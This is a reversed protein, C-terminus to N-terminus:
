RRKKKKKRKKAKPNKKPQQRQQTSAPKKQNEPTPSGQKTQEKVSAEGSSSKDMSAGAEAGDNIAPRGGSELQPQNVAGKQRNKRKPQKRQGRPKEDIVEVVDGEVVTDQGRRQARRAKRAKMKAEAESGPAPMRHIVFFQQGMTWMNTVLWYILVGIPFYVGSVAFIFPMMYMFMKQQRAFPNDLAAQPMNKMTLQRQTFFQTASMAIIMIATVIKVSLMDSELFSSSLPAGFITSAQASEAVQADIPGVPSTKGLAIDQLGRLVRFLAFFIPTQLLIPMCSSFPNTGHKRYLAMTEESMAQRSVPDTKGKYRDQIKKLEPQLMQMARSARIQRVFLPILVIRIVIVLGTISLFWNLGGNPDLGVANWLWHWGYLIYSVIWMIPALITDLFDM